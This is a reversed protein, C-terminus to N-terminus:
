FRTGPDQRLVAKAIGHGDAAMRGLMEDVWAIHRDWPGPANGLFGKVWALPPVISATAFGRMKDILFYEVSQCINFAATRPWDDWDEPNPVMVM